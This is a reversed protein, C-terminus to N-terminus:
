SEPPIGRLIASWEGNSQMHRLEVNMSEMQYRGCDTKTFLLWVLLENIPYNKDYVIMGLGTQQIAELGSREEVIAGDFRGLALMRINELDSSPERSFDIKDNSTLTDPYAYQRTLGIRMGELDKVTRPIETGKRVFVFDRKTLIPVSKYASVPQGASSHPLLADVRGNQFLSLARIKPFVEIQADLNARRAATRILDIFAGKDASEIFFPIEAAAINM